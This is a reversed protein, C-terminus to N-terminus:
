NQLFYYIILTLTFVEVNLWIINFLIIGAEVFINFVVTKLM